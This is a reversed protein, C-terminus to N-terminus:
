TGASIMLVSHAQSDAPSDLKVTRVALSAALSVTFTLPASLDRGRVCAIGPNTIGLMVFWGNQPDGPWPGPSRPDPEGTIIQVNVETGTGPAPRLTLGVPMDVYAEWAIRKCTFLV